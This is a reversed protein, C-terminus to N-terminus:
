LARVDVVEALHPHEVKEQIIEAEVRSVPFSEESGGAAIRERKRRDLEAEVETRAADLEVQERRTGEGKDGGSDGRQTVYVGGGM